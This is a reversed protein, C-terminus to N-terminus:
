PAFHQEFVAAPEALSTNLGQGYVVGGRVEFVDDSDSVVLLSDSDKGWHSEDFPSLDQVFVYLEEGASVQPADEAWM